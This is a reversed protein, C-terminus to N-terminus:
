GDGVFQHAVIVDMELREVHFIPEVNDTVHFPPFTESVSVLVYQILGAPFHQPIQLGM